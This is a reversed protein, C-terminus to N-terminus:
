PHGPVSGHQRAGARLPRVGTEGPTSARGASRPPSRALRPHPGRGPLHGSRHNLRGPSRPISAAPRGHDDNIGADHAYGESVVAVVTIVRTVAQATFPQGRWVQDIELGGRNQRRCTRSPKMSTQRAANARSPRAASGSRRADCWGRSLRQQSSRSFTVLLSADYTASASASPTVKSVPSWLNARAVPGRQSISTSREDGGSGGIGASGRGGGLALRHTISPQLADDVPRRSPNMRLGSAAM